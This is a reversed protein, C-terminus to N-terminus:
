ERLWRVMDPYPKAGKEAAQPALLTMGAQSLGMCGPYVGAGYTTVLSESRGHYGGAHFLVAPDLDLFRIAAYAWATAEMEGAHPHESEELGDSLRARASAPTVAIHGAEHLLDGPTTSLRIVAEYGQPAAFIGQALEPPLDSLVELRAALLGHSKAHVSRIAHGSDAYTKQAISLMTEALDRAIQPEDPEIHEIDPHYRVPTVALRSTM